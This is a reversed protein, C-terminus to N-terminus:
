QFLRGSPRYTGEFSGDCSLTHGGYCWLNRLVDYRIMNRGMEHLREVEVGAKAVSRLFRNALEEIPRWDEVRRHTM